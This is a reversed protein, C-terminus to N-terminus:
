FEFRSTLEWSRGASIRYARNTGDPNSSTPILEDDNFMNRVNLQIRWDIKDTLKRKYTIWADFSSLADAYIANDLDDIWVGIDERWKLYFGIISKDRGVCPEM